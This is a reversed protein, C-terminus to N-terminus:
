LTNKLYMIVSQEVRGSVYIVFEVLLKVIAVLFGLLAFLLLIILVIIHLVTIM